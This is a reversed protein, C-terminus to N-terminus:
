ACYGHTNAYHKLDKYGLSSKGNSISTAQAAATSQSDLFYRDIMWEEIDQRLSEFSTRLFVIEKQISGRIGVFTTETENSITDTSNDMAITTSPQTSTPASTVMSFALSVLLLPVMRAKLLDIRGTLIASKLEEGWADFTKEDAVQQCNGYAVQMFESLFPLCGPGKRIGFNDKVGPVYDRIGGFDMFGDPGNKRSQSAYGDNSGGSAGRRVPNIPKINLPRIGTFPPYVTKLEPFLTSPNPPPPTSTILSPDPVGHELPALAKLLSLRSQTTADSVAQGLIQSPRADLGLPVERPEEVTRRAHQIIFGPAITVLAVIRSFFRILRYNVGRASQDM